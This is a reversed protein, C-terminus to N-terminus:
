LIAKLSDGEKMRLINPTDDDTVRIGNFLFRYTNVSVGNHEAYAKKLKGMNTGYQVRFPVEFDNQDVFKIKIYESPPHYNSISYDSNDNYRYQQTYDVEFQNEGQDDNICDRAIFLQNDLKKFNKTFEEKFIEFSDILIEFSETIEEIQNKLQTNKNMLAVHETSNQELTNIKEEMKETDDELEKVKTELKKNELELERIYQDQKNRSIVTNRRKNNNGEVM